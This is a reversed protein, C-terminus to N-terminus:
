TMVALGDDITQFSTPLVTRDSLETAVVYLSTATAYVLFTAAVNLLKEAFFGFGAASQFLNQM